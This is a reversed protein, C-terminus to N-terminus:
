QAVALLPSGPTSPCGRHTCTASVPQQLPMSAALKEEGSLESVKPKSEDKKAERMRKAQM